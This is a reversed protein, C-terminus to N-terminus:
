TSSSSFYRFIQIEGIEFYVVNQITSKKIPMLGWGRKKKVKEVKTSMTKIAEQVRIVFDRM